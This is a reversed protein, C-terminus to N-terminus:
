QGDSLPWGQRPLPLSGSPLIASVRASAHWLRLVSGIQVLVSCSRFQLFRRLRVGSIRIISMTSFTFISHDIPNIIHVELSRNLRVSNFMQIKLSRDLRLHTKRTNSGHPSGTCGHAAEVCPARM